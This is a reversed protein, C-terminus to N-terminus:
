TSGVFLAGGAAVAESVSMAPAGGTPMELNPSSLLISSDHQPLMCCLGGAVRVVAM